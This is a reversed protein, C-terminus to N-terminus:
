SVADVSPCKPLCLFIMVESLDHAPDDPIGQWTIVAEAGSRGRRLWTTIEPVPRTPVLKRV